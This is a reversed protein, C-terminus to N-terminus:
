TARMRGPSGRSPPSPTVTTQSRQPGRPRARWTRQWSARTATGHAGTAASTDRPTLSNPRRYANTYREASARISTGPFPRAFISGYERHIRESSPERTFGKSEEVAAVKLALKGSILPRNVSLSSRHGGFSDARFTASATPRAANAEAPVLNVTGASAGLGFLNSNPGRSIEIAGVNYLDFPIKPNSSFNGWANNVGSGSTGASGVGRIRNARAPDGQINDGVGGTRNPTFQTFDDTGETSAEYRFLDNIDLIATDQMQQMTVVTISSGLDELKSNLRTGALTNFAQYGKDDSVVNFPSLQVVEDDTGTTTVIPIPATRTSASNATPVAAPAQSQALVTPRTGTFGAALIFTLVLPRPYTSM